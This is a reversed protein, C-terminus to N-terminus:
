HREELAKQYREMLQTRTILGRVAGGTGLVALSQADHRSFRDLAVDLTLDRTLTPLDTRMLERVTLLPIAERYVLAAALDAGTVMGVYGDRDDVVIFDRMLHKESLELLHQATENEHVSVVQLLPVDRVSLRRLITMDSLSGVRVGMQTLKATYISDPHILRAVITSIVTALMLPLIIAYDRTLEYVLLMGTLPAHATGALMAAMGVLAYYAPNAAPFWALANVVYGVAGGACAGMLLSPAFLGGSGGSGITMCTAIAKIAGLLVITVLLNWGLLSGGETLYMSPSLLARVAAYGSGYFDPAGRPSEMLVIWALGLVGLMAAGIAPKIIAPGRLADFWGQVRYLARTFWAAACGGIVGLLLYNPIEIMHFTGTIAGFEVARAFLADDGGLMAQTCATSIVAAIVVPTFTRMSFDRLLVELAFFIGAIPANFVSAIGAAAGCGLLTVRDQASGRVLRSFNSGIVSGITVIPGEPGASGGSGITFTSAIWKALALRLDLRARRRHISYMVAPIGPMSTERIITLVVGTVLAGAIPALPVLWLMRARPQGAAWDEIMRLPLIFATAVGAMILGLVAAVAMMAWDRELRLSKMARAAFNESPSADM